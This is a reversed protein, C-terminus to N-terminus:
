PKNLKDIIQKQEAEVKQLSTLERQLRQLQANAQAIEEMVAAEKRHRNDREADILNRKGIATLKAKETLASEAALVRNMDTCM